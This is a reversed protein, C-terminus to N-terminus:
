TVVYVVDHERAHQNVKLGVAQGIDTSSVQDHEIQLSGVTQYFDSTHGKVHIRDGLHLRRDTVAVVAVSLHSYYHTVVGVKLENVPVIPTPLAASPAAAIRPPGARRAAPKRVTVPRKRARSAKTTRTAKKARKRAGTKKRAARTRTKATSRRKTAASRSRAAKKARKPARRRAASSRSRAPKKKASRKKKSASRSKKM